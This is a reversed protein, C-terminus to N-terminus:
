DTFSPTVGPNVNRRYNRECSEYPVVNRLRDIVRLALTSGADFTPYIVSRLEQYTQLVTTAAVGVLNPHQPAREHGADSKDSRVCNCRIYTATKGTGIKNARESKIQSGTCKHADHSDILYQELRYRCGAPGNTLWFFLVLHVLSFPSPVFM